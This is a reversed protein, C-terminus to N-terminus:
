SFHKVCWTKNEIPFVFSCYIFLIKLVWQRRTKPLFGVMEMALQLREFDHRLDEGEVTFCDQKLCSTPFFVDLNGILFCHLDNMLKLLGRHLHNSSSYICVSENLRKDSYLYAFYVYRGLILLVKKEGRLLWWCLIEFHILYFALLM